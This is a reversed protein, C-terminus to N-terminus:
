WKTGHGVQSNEVNVAVSAVGGYVVVSGQANPLVM